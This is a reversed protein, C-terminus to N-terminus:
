LMVIVAYVIYMNQGKTFPIWWFGGKASNWESLGTVGWLAFDMPGVHAGDPDNRGLILGM